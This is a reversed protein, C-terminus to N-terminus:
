WRRWAASRRGPRSATAPAAPSSENTQARNLSSDPPRACVRSRPRNYAFAGLHAHFGDDLLGRVGIKQTLHDAEGGFPQHLQLHTAQGARGPALLARIPQDLAVAIAVPVPLRPGARDLQSDRLQAAAGVEGAEELRPAHRLFRQGGDDLLGVDVADRRARDVVQHLREAHAADRLALDGPEAGLDVFPHRGEEIARKLAVPGVEPDVRGVQLHALVPPDDRDCDHGGGAM